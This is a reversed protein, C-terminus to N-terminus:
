KIIEAFTIFKQEYLNTIFKSLRVDIPQIKEGFEKSLEDAIVGVKKQGDIKMWVSSGLEDLKIKIVSSKMRPVLYKVVFNNTFKPILVTVLNDDGILEKHLRIPTLDFANKGKLIKRREFFNLAM